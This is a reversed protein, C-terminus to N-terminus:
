STKVSLAAISAEIKNLFGRNGFPLRESVYRDVLSCSEGIKVLVLESYQSITFEAYIVLGEEITM